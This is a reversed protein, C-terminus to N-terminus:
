PALWMGNKNLCKPVSRADNYAYVRKAYAYTYFPYRCVYKGKLLTADWDELPFRLGGRAHAADWNFKKGPAVFLVHQRHPDTPQWGWTFNIWYHCPNTVAVQEPFVWVKASGKGIPEDDDYCPIEMSPVVPPMAAKAPPAVVTLLVVVMSLVLRKV